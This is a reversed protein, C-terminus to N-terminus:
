ASRPPRPHHGNRPRTIASQSAQGRGALLYLVGIMLTPVAVALGSGGGGINAVGVLLMLLGATSPRRLGLCALPIATAFVAISGIPGVEDRPVIRFVVDVVVFLAVVIAVLTMVTSATYPRYFSFVSMAIMPILWSATLVVATSGGPDMMSEGVIFAGGLVAFVVALGFAAYRLVQAADSM